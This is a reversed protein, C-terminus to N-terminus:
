NCLKNITCTHRIRDQTVVVRQKNDISSGIQVVVRRNSRNTRSDLIRSSNLVGRHYRLSLSPPLSSPLLLAVTRAREQTTSKNKTDTGNAHLEAISYCYASSTQWPTTPLHPPPPVTSPAARISDLRHSPSLCYHHDATPTSLSLSLSLSLSSHRSTM